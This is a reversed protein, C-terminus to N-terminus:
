ILTNPESKSGTSAGAVEIAFGYERGGRGKLFDFNEEINFLETDYELQTQTTL